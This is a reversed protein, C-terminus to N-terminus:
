SGSAKVAAVLADVVTDVDRETMGPYLPLTLERASLSETKPLRLSRTSGLKRYATFTHVPPYHISTQIGETKLRGAVALRDAGAPLLAPVIHIGTNPYEARRDSSTFPLRVPTQSLREAYYAYLIRRRRLFEPLRRLQVRLLAARVEDMRYNYGPVLVDYGQALGRHRELTPSTMGHSRLRRLEDALVADDTLLAGGEGCTANKNSFFSFCGVRGHLGLTTGQYTTFLAHACDEIIPIGQARAVALLKDMRCAFGAYHVAIIAQTREDGLAAVADPDVTLDDDGISECFRVAAGLTVAANAPAVFTLAPCIVSGGPGVGLAVCALQLAATCSSVAVAHRAGSAACLEEELRLVEDGMTLWGARLPRLIAEEEEPGFCAEFLPIRWSAM